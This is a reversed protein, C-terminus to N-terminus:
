HLLVNAIVVVISLVAAMAGIALFMMRILHDSGASQGAQLNLRSEVTSRWADYQGLIQEFTERPLFTLAQDNLQARFENVGDFRKETAADAKLIAERAADFRASTVKKEAEVAAQIQVVQAAVHDRMAVEASQQVRLREAFMMDVYEKLQQTTWGQEPSPSPQGM